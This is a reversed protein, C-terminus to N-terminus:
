HFYKSDIIKFYAAITIHGSLHLNNIQYKEILEATAIFKIFCNDTQLKLLKDRGIDSINNDLVYIYYNHNKSANEILSKISVGLYKVYNNDSSYCIHIDM